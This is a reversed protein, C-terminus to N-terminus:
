KLTKRLAAIVMDADFAEMEGSRFKELRKEAIRGWAKIISDDPTDLTQLLRDALLAREIPQLNMAEHEIVASEMVM